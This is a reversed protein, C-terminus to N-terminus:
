IDVLILNTRQNVIKQHLKNHENCLCNLLCSSRGIVLNGLNLLLGEMAKCDSSYGICDTCAGQRFTRKELRQFKFAKVVSSCGKCHIVHRFYRNALNPTHKTGVGGKAPSSASAGAVLGAPAHEVVAPIKPLSITSHRFHYPMGHGVKDM